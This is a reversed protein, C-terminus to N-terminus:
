IYAHLNRKVCANTRAFIGRMYVCIHMPICAYLYECMCGCASVQVSVDFKMNQKLSARFNPAFDCVPRLEEDARFNPPFDHAEAIQGPMRLRPDVGPEGHRIEAHNMGPFHSSAIGSGHPADMGSGHPADMGSGHPADMGSGHPADM